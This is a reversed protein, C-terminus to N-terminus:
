LYVVLKIKKYENMWKEIKQKQISSFILMVNVWSYKANVMSNQWKCIQVYWLFYEEWSACKFLNSSKHNTFKEYHCYSNDYIIM